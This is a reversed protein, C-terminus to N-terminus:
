PDTRRADAAATRAVACYLAALASACDISVRVLLGASVAVLIGSAAWAGDLAAGAGLVLLGLAMVLVAPSPFPWARLRVLQRGAGHEEV